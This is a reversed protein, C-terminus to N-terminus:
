RVMSKAKNRLQLYLVHEHAPISSFPGCKPVFEQAAAVAPQQQEPAPMLPTAAAVTTTAPVSQIGSVQQQQTPMFAAVLKAFIALPNAVAAQDLLPASPPPRSTSTPWFSSSANKGNNNWGSSANIGNNNWGSSANNGNNNWGSTTAHTYDPVPTRAPPQMLARVVPQITHYYESVSSRGVVQNMPACTPGARSTVASASNTSAAAPPLANCRSASGEHGHQSLVPQSQRYLSTIEDTSYVPSLARASPNNTENCNAPPPADANVNGALASHVAEPLRNCPHTPLSAATMPRVPTSSHSAAHNTNSSPNVHQPLRYSRPQASVSAPIPQARTGLNLLAPTKSVPLPESPANALDSSPNVHEPLRYFRTRAAASSPSSTRTAHILPVPSQGSRPIEQQNVCLSLRASETKETDRQVPEAAVLKNNLNTGSVAASRCRDKKKFSPLGLLQRHPSGEAPAAILGARGPNSAINGATAVRKSAASGLAADALPRKRVGTLTSSKSIATKKVSTTDPTRTMATLPSSTSSRALRDPQCMKSIRQSPPLFKTTSDVPSSQTKVPSKRVCRGNACPPTGGISGNSSALPLSSQAKHDRSAHAPSDSIQFPSCAVSSPRQQRGKAQEVHFEAIVDECEEDEESDVPTMTDEDSVKPLAFPGSSASSKGIPDQATAHASDDETSSVLVATKNETHERRESLEHAKELPPVRAEHAGNEVAHSVSDVQNPAAGDHRKKVPSLMGPPADWSKFIHTSQQQEEGGGNAWLLPADEELTTTHDAPGRKEQDVNFTPALGPGYGDDAAELAVAVDREEAVSTDPARIAYAEERDESPTMVFLTKEQRDQRVDGSTSVRDERASVSKPEHSRVDHPAATVPSDRTYGDKVHEGARTDTETLVTAQFGFELQQETDDDQSVAPGTETLTDDQWGRADESMANILYGYGNKALMEASPLSKAALGKGGRTPRANEIAAVDSQEDDNGEEEPPSDSFIDDLEEIDRASLLASGSGPVSKNAFQNANSCHLPHDALQEEATSAVLVDGYSASIDEDEEDIEGDELAEDTDPRPGPEDDSLSDSFNISASDMTDIVDEMQVEGPPSTPPTALRSSSSPYSSSSLSSISNRTGNLLLPLRTYKRFLDFSFPESLM